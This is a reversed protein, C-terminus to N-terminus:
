NTLPRSLVTTKPSISRSSTVIAPIAANSEFTPSKSPPIALFSTLIKRVATFAHSASIAGSLSATAVAPPTKMGALLELYPQLFARAFFLHQTAADGNWYSAIVEKWHTSETALEVAQAAM